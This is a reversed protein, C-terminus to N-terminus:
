DMLDNVVKDIVGSIYKLLIGGITFYLSLQYSYMHYSFDTCANCILSGRFLNTLTIQYCEMWNCFYM